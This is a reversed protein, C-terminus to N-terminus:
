RRYPQDPYLRYGREACRLRSSENVMRHWWPPFTRLAHGRQVEKPTIDGTALTYHLVTVAVFDVDSTHVRFDDLEV